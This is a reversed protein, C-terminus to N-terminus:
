DMCRTEMGWKLISMASPASHLYEIRHNLVHDSFRRLPDDFAFSAIWIRRGFECEKWGANEYAIKPSSSDMNPYLFRLILRSNM